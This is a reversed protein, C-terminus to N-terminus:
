KKWRGLKEFAEMAANLLAEIRVPKVFYDDFGVERCEVLDYVSTYGTVAHCISVPDKEKIIRCLDLGNMGPLQLDIFLVHIGSNEYIELAHEATEATIVEYGEGKFVKEFLDRISKEDDIVLIKRKDM